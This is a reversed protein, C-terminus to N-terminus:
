QKKALRPLFVAIRPVGALITRHGDAGTHILEVLGVAALPIGPPALFGPNATNFSFAGQDDALATYNRTASGDRPSVRLTVLRDQFGAPTPVKGNVRSGVTDLAMSLDAVTMRATRAAGGDLPELEVALQQGAIIRPAAGRLGARLQGASDLVATATALAAGGAAPELSLRAAALPSGEVGAQETGLYATLRTLLDLSYFRHGEADLHSAEARLGPGATVGAPLARRWAGTAQDTLVTVTRAGGAGEFRVSLTRSLPGTGALSWSKDAAQELRASLPGVPVALSRGFRLSLSQGAALIAPRGAEDALRLNFRQDVAATTRAQGVAAGARELNAQVAARPLALGDVADGGVMVNLWPIARDIRARNGNPYTYTVQLRSGARLNADPSFAAQYFASAPVTVARTVAGNGQGEPPQAVVTVTGDPTTEGSVTETATDWDIGLPPVTMSRKLGEFRLEITEGARPLHLEGKPTTLTLDYRGLVSSAGSASAVPLGLADLAVVTLETGGPVSGDVRGLEPWVRISSAAEVLRVRHGEPYSYLVDVRSGGVIDLRGRFDALYRGAGDVTAALTQTNFLVRASVALTAGAPAQGSVRDQGIDLEATLTPITLEFSEAGRKFSLRDGPLILAPRNLPDALDATFGGAAAAAVAARGKETGGAGRLILIVPADPATVGSVTAAGLLAEVRTLAWGRSLTVTLGPQRQVLQVQGSSGPALDVQGAFSAQYRGAADAVVRLTVAGGGAGASVQVEAGAPAQGSVTDTAADAQADLQPVPYDYSSLGVFNLKVRDGPQLPVPDGAASLLNFGFIGFFAGSGGGRALTRAGRVLEAEVVAGNPGAGSVAADYLRLNLQSSLPLELRFTFPDAPYDLRLNSGEAIDYGGAFSVAFAGSADAVAGRAVADFGLGSSVTVSIAAGAPATGTVADTAADAALRLAPVLAEIAPGAADAVRIRDGAAVPVPNGDADALALNYFGILPLANGGASGKVTQGAGRLEASLEAGSAARGTIAPRGLSVVASLPRAPAQASAARPSPAVAALGLLLCALARAASRRAAAGDLAPRPRPM